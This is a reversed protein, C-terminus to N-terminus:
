SQNLVKIRAQEADAVRQYEAAREEEQVERERRAATAAAAEAPSEIRQVFPKALAPSGAPRSTDFTSFFLRQKRGDAHATALLACLVVALGPPSWLPLGLPHTPSLPM